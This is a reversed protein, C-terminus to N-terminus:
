HIELGELLPYTNPKYPFGPVPLDNKTFFTKDFTIPSGYIKIGTPPKVSAELKTPCL